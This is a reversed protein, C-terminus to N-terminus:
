LYGAALVAGCYLGEKLSDVAEGLLHPGIAAGSPLGFRLHHRRERLFSIASWTSCAAGAIVLGGLAGSGKAPQSGSASPTDIM